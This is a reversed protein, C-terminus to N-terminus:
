NEKRAVRAKHREKRLLLRLRQAYVIVIGSYFWFIYGMLNEYFFRKYGFSIFVIITVIMWGLGLAGWRGSTTSLYKADKFILWLVWFHLMLGIVGLEWLLNSITTTGVGYKAYQSWYEGDLGEIFSNSVNGMGLGFLLHLPDKALVSLALFYGDIKGISDIDEDAEVGKYLYEATRGDLALFDSIGYGWRPVIFYDYITVFAAMVVTAVLGIALLQGIKKDSGSSLFFPLMFALPLFIVSSKTENLTTPFSLFICIFLMVKLSLQKKVYLSVIISIACVLLVTLLSSIMVTGTIRDGLDTPYLVLRQFAAVPVQVAILLILWGRQWNLDKSTFHYAFPLLFFPIYKLYYRIGSILPGASVTNVIVGVLIILIFTVLYLQYRRPLRNDFGSVSAALIVLTAAISLIDPLWTIERSIVELRIGFFDLTFISILLCIVLKNM